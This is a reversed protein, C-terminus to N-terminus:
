EEDGTNYANDSEARKAAAEEQAPRKKKKKRFKDLQEAYTGANGQGRIADIFDNVYDSMSKQDQNDPM